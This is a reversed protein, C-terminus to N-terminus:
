KEVVSFRLKLDIERITPHDFELRLEAPTAAIYSCVPADPPVEIDLQYLGLEAAATPHPEFRTVLFLPNAHAAKLKLARESERVKLTLRAKTGEGQGLIGLNLIGGERIVDGYLTYPKAPAYTVPIVVTWPEDEGPGRAIIRLKGSVKPDQIQQPPITLRLLKAVKANPCGVSDGDVDVIEWTCGPLDLLSVEDLEIADWVDSHLRVDVVSEQEPLRDILTIQDAPSVDFVVAVEGQIRFTIRPTKVDNTLIIASHSFLEQKDSTRWSLTVEGSQGPAITERGLKSLTCNCSTRGKTLKLPADGTNYVTFTHSAKWGPNMHGFDHYTNEVSVCPLRVDDPSDVQQQSISSTFDRDKASLQNPNSLALPEAIVRGNRSVFRIDSPTQPHQFVFETSKILTVNIAAIAVMVLAGCVLIRNM